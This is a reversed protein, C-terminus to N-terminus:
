PRVKHKHKFAPARKERFAAFGEKFDAGKFASAFLGRSADDDSAAGERLWTFIQKTAFASFSSAKAIDAVYALTQSKLQDAPFLRDVLGMRHAEQADMLRGSFLIDKAKSVGVAQALRRTDAVGYVLGLKAPTIGFRAGEAAFRFDCSLALGCGGGVCPGEIMAITPFPFAEVASMARQMTEQNAMAAEPTAYTTEFEDIDAGASFAGGSGTVILARALPDTAVQQLLEPIAAWMSLKLANRKAPRNLTLVAHTADLTVIM